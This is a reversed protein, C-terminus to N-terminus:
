QLRRTENEHEVSGSENEHEVSGSENQTNDLADPGIKM